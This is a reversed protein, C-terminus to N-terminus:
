FYLWTYLIIDNYWIRPQSNQPNKPPKPNKQKNTKSPPPKFARREFCVLSCSSIKELGEGGVWEQSAAFQNVRNYLVAEKLSRSDCTRLPENYRPQKTHVVVCYPDIYFSAM